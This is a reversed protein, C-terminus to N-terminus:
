NKKAKKKERKKKVTLKVLYIFQKEDATCITNYLQITDDNQRDKKWWSNMM